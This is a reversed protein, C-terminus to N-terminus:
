EKGKGIAHPRERRQTPRKVALRCCVGPLVKPQSYVKLVKVLWTMERTTVVSSRTAKSWARAQDSMNQPYQGHLRYLTGILGQAPHGPQDESPLHLPYALSQWPFTQVLLQISPMVTFGMLLM